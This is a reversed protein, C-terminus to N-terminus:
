IFIVRSLLRQGKRGWTLRNVILLTKDLFNLEHYGHLSIARREKQAPLKTILSNKTEVGNSLLRSFKELCRYLSKISTLNCLYANFPRVVYILSSQQSLYHDVFSIIYDCVNLGGRNCTTLFEDTILPYNGKEMMISTRHPFKWFRLEKSGWWM